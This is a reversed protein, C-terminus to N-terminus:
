LLAVYLPYCEGATYLLLTISNPCQIKICNWIGDIGATSEQTLNLNRWLPRSIDKSFAEYDSGSISISGIIRCPIKRSHRTEQLKHSLVLDGISMKEFVRLFYCYLCDAM